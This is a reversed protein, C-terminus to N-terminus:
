AVGVASTGKPPLLGAVSFRDCSDLHLGCLASHVKLADNLADLARADRADAGDSFFEVAM